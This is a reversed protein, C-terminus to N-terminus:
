HQYKREEPDEKWCTLFQTDFKCSQTQKPKKLWVCPVGTKAPDQAIIRSQLFAGEVLERAASPGTKPFPTGELNKTCQIGDCEEENKCEEKCEDCSLGKSHGWTIGFNTTSLREVDRCENCVM